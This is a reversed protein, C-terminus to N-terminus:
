GFLMREDYDSGNMVHWVAKSLKCALAKRAIPANTRRLKRDYWSQIAPYFRVAYVAAEAYAWSLYKNGNKRNNAGKRKSNSTRKSEVGRCYSAYNGASKFRGFDGSELYITLALIRGIGAVNQIRQYGDAKEVFGMVSKELRAVIGDSSRFADMFAAAQIAAYEELGLIAISEDTWGRLM